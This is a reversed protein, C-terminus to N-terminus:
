PLYATLHTACETQATRLSTATGHALTTGTDDNTVTWHYRTTTHHVSRCWVVRPM